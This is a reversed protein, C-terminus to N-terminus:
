GLFKFLIQAYPQGERSAPLLADTAAEGCQGRRRRPLYLKDSLFLAVNSVLIRGLLTALRVSLRLRYLFVRSAATRYSHARSPRDLGCKRSIGASSLSRS